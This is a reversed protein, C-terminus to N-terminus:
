RISQEPLGSQIGQDIPMSDPQGDGYFEILRDLEVRLEAVTNAHAPDNVLNKSELPDVGLDYLEALHKDASGDGHPYRIYKWRNTRLARVNPTYPFQHEYNYEYYISTRWDSSDGQALRKWSKGQVSPLPSAGCLEVITPAFDITATLQEIKQPKEIPTLVPYRVVLPIRISPEHGTRKDVMGHEGELLGNDSTYIILTNDLEGRDKLLQYLRGVSDDVSLLTGWYAHVMREFDVVAEPSDDPFKKRWDFLPGYIGHWTDLRKKFWEPKDELKFATEPYKVPVDDFAHEYKPEPTYFSHPAKHGLIMMWPKKGEREGIWQQAMDTVVTTYYGKVVRREKGNFNFETDFYQGQGKHTVFHDFGPRPNDNAEGMHWKGIYATEYGAEQLRMPFSLMEAPYETFNNVVGHKRAYMGSLISARSPSCLATTCFHNKFLLGEGALRDINPTKLHPHGMCGLSNYRQDDTLIFLVNPRVATEQALSVSALLCFLFLSFPRM